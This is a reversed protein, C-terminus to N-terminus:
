PAPPPMPPLSRRVAREIRAAISRRVPPLLLILGVADTIFGPVAILLGAPVLLSRQAATAAARPPASERAELALETAGGARLEAVAASWSRGTATAGYRMLVIGVPICVVFIVLVWWWGIISAVGIAVILELLPYGFVVLALKAGPSM